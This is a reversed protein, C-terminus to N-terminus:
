SGDLFSDPHLRATMKDYKRSIFGEGALLCARKLTPTFSKNKHNQKIEHEKCV